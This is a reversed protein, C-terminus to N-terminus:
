ITLVVNGMLRGGEVAEHAAACDELPFRAAITHRVLGRAFLDNMRAIAERRATAELEYIIFFRIAAGSVIMPVFELSFEPKASGYVACLGDKAVIRPLLRGNTAIDVEVVRDVGRGGTEAAVRAAVDETRYDIVVDAGAGRAHDAKAASSVTAFVKAAGLLKAFQIAYHGVSGAGGTVLVTRGEVSGDVTVARWATLAPIGFCAGEEFSCAEPLPVVLDEPLVIFEAATGLPRGWQGNLVWVREGGRYASVGSGVRDVVGAGDSHPVVIPGAMPRVGSRAKWDSPNVGSVALRVRVEGPGPEPDPLTGTRIVERAPGTREYWAARM